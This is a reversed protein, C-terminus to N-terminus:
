RLVSAYRIRVPAIENQNTRPPDTARGVAQDRAVVDTRRSLLALLPLAAGLALWVSPEPVPQADGPNLETLFAAIAEREAATTPDGAHAMIAATLTPASGDHLYPATAWVGILSPADFGDLTSGLRHGSGAHITGVDHRADLASDSFPAGSHCSGCAKDAFLVGGAEAQASFAGGARQPSAPASALSAVYAALADLDSSLGAKPDGLPLARTGEYFLADDLLGSGGALTRIQGEFDQVEDFNGTWHLPGHGMGARGRLDVTNRLGEGFGSIDWVRGDGGGDNHCSACSMYNDRALRDDQADYFLQKGLLVDAPMAEAAVTSVTGLLPAQAVHLAVLNTVDYRSLTRDMFNHVYLTRGNSSLAVGQPARGVALRTLQFGQLTDYVAVERSTELAVFLYRGEGSVAAGTAVGANDHDIRLGTQEVGSPLDVISTVARVTQDFTMGPNGRYAGADINDQKSPVYARSGYLVPANLYNPMGPGTVEAPPRSSRGFAITQALSMADTSVVFLQAGGASMDIVADDEGPLPPTVFNTVYLSQGSASVALHRPHGSLAASAQLAGTAPMRKDVRALGELAVYFVDGAPAFM